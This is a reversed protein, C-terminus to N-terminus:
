MILCSSEVPPDALRLDPKEDSPPLIRFPLARDSAPVPATITHGLTEEVEGEGKPTLTYVLHLGDPQAGHHGPEKEEGPVVKLRITQPTEPATELANRFVVSRGPALDIGINWFTRAETGSDRTSAGARVGAATAKSEVGAGEAFGEPVLYNRWSGGALDLRIAGDQARASVLMVRVTRSSENLFTKAASGPVACLALLLSSRLLATRM